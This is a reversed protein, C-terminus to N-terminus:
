REEKLLGQMVLFEIMYKAYSTLMERGEFMFSEQKEAVARKYLKRLVKAKAPTFNTTGM